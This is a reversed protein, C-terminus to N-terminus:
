ARKFHLVDSRLLLVVLFLFPASKIEPRSITRRIERPKDEREYQQASENFARIASRGEKDKPKEKEKGRDKERLSRTWPSIVDM